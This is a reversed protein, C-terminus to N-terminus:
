RTRIKPPGQAQDDFKHPNLNRFAERAAHSRFLLGFGGDQYPLGAFDFRAFAVGDKHAGCYPIGRAAVTAKTEMARGKISVEVATADQRSAAAGCVCCGAPWKDIVRVGDSRTILENLKDMVADQASLAITKSTQGVIDDWPLAAPYLPKDAVHGMPVLSLRGDSATSCAACSRCVLVGDGSHWFEYMKAGCLPCPGSAPRPMFPAMLVMAPGTFLCAAALIVVITESTQVGYYGFYALAPGMIWMALLSLAYLGWSKPFPTSQEAM